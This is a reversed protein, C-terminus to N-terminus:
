NFTVSAMSLDGVLEFNNDLLAAYWTMQFGGLPDNITLEFLGPVDLDMPSALDFAAVPVIATSFTPWSYFTGGAELLIYASVPYTMGTDNFLRIGMSMTDGPDYVSQNTYIEIGAGGASPTPTPTPPMTPTPTAVGGGWLGEAVNYDVVTLIVSDISGTEGLPLNTITQELAWNAMCCYKNGIEVNSTTGSFLVPLVDCTGQATNFPEEAGVTFDGDLPITIDFHSDELVPITLVGYAFITLNQTWSDGAAMPFSMDAMPPDYEENETITMTGIPFWTGFVDYSARASLEREKKVVSFDLSSIWFTAEFQGQDLLIPGDIAPPGSVHVEGTGELIGVGVIKYCEYTAGTNDQTVNEIGTVTYTAEAYVVVYGGPGLEPSSISYEEEMDYTDGINMTPLPMAAQVAACGWMAVLFAIATVLTRRV